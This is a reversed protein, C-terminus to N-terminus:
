TEDKANSPIFRISKSVIDEIQEPTLELGHEKIAERLLTTDFTLSLDLVGTRFAM